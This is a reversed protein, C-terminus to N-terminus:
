LTEWKFPSYIDSRCLALVSKGINEGLSVFKNFTLKGANALNYVEQANESSFSKYIISKERRMGLTYIDCWINNNKEYLNVIKNEGSKYGILGVSSNKPNESAYLTHCKPMDLISTLMSGYSEVSVGYESDVVNLGIIEGCANSTLNTMLESLIERNKEAAFMGWLECDSCYFVNKRRDTCTNCRTVTEKYDCFADGFTRSLTRENNTYIM